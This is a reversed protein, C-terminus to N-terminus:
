SRAPRLLVAITALTVKLAEGVLFPTLGAAVAKNLGILTALWTVGCLLIAADAGVLLAAVPLPDRLDPWRGVLSAIFAAPVFGVIYGFTPGVLAGVGGGQAFVPLGVLGEGVYAVVAGIAAVPGMLIGLLLVVLTQMTMPVPWFPVSIHASIALLGSGVLALAITRLPAAPSTDRAPVTWTPSNPSM